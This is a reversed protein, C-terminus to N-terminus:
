IKHHPLARAKIYKDYSKSDIPQLCSCSRLYSMELSEKRLYKISASNLLQQGAWSCWSAKSVIGLASLVTHLWGGCDKQSTARHGIKKNKHHLLKFLRILSLHHKSHDTMNLNSPSAGVVSLVATLATRKGFTRLLLEDRLWIRLLHEIVFLNFFDWLWAQKPLDTIGKFVNM